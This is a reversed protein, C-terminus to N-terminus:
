VRHVYGSLEPDHRHKRSRERYFLRPHGAANQVITGHRIRRCLCATGAMNKQQSEQMYPIVTKLIQLERSEILTDLLPRTTTEEM